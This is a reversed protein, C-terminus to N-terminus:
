AGMGQTLPLGSMRWAGTGGKVTVVQYGHQELYSCVQWSRAGSECIVFIKENRPLDAIRLPVMAMSMLEAGRVHGSRYENPERVDILRSKGTKLAAALAQVTVEEM